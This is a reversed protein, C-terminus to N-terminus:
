SPNRRRAKCDAAACCPSQRGSSSLERRWSNKCTRRGQGLKQVRLQRTAPEASRRYGRLETRLLFLFTAKQRCSSFRCHPPSTLLRVRAASRRRLLASNEAALKSCGRQGFMSQGAHSAASAGMSAWRAMAEVDNVFVARSHAVPIGALEAQERQVGNPVIGTGILAGALTLTNQV